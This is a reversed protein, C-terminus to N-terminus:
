LEVHRFQTKPQAKVLSLIHLFKERDLNSFRKLLYLSYQKRSEWYLRECGKAVPRPSTAHDYLYKALDKDSSLEGAKRAISLAEDHQANRRVQLRLALRYIDPGIFYNDSFVICDLRATANAGDGVAKTLFRKEAHRQSLRIWDPLQHTKFYGKRWSGFPTLLVADGSKLYSISGSSEVRSRKAGPKTYYFLPIDLSGSATQLSWVCSLARVTPGHHHGVILSLPAIHGFTNDNTLEPFHATLVVNFDQDSPTIVRVGRDANGWLGGNTARKIAQTTNEAIVPLSVAGAIAGVLFRRRSATDNMISVEPNVSLFESSPLTVSFRDIYKGQELM